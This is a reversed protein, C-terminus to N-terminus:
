AGPFVEFSFLLSNLKSPKSEWFISESLCKAFDTGLSENFRQKSFCTHVSARKPSPFVSIANLKSFNLTGDPGTISLKLHGPNFETPRFCFIM